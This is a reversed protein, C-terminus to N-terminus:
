GAGGMEAAAQRSERELVQIRVRTVGQNHFRLLQAAHHSVDLIRGGVFPGRDNVRLVVSRGNELNTVRIISPLPLTPHAATLAELDFREGNATVRTHFPHGYWSAKGSHDYAYDVHPRYVVGGVHYPEGVKYVGESGAAHPWTVQPPPPPPPASVAQPPTSCASVLLAVGLGTVSLRLWRFFGM